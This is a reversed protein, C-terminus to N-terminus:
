PDFLDLNWNTRLEQELHREKGLAGWENYATLSNQIYKRANDTDAIRLLHKGFLENGLAYGFLSGSEKFLSIAEFYLSFVTDEDKSRLSALEAELLKHKGLFNYPQHKAWRRLRHSCKSAYFARGKHHRAHSIHCLGNVLETVSCFNPPFELRIANETMKALKMTEEDHTKGFMYRIVMRACQGAKYISPSMGRLKEEVLSEQFVAGTLCTPDNCEVGMFNQIAQRFPNVWYSLGEQNYRKIRDSIIHLGRDLSRLLSIELMAYHATVGCILAFEIDGTELGVRHATL